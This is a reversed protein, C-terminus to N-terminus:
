AKVDPSGPRRVSRRQKWEDMFVELNQWTQPADVTINDVPSLILGDPGLTEIAQRVAARVEEEEGMEVTIAGSVGGWLCIQGATKKKIAGLNTNTGQV